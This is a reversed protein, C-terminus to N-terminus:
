KCSACQFSLEPILAEPPFACCHLGFSAVLFCRLVDSMCHNSIKCVKKQDTESTLIDCFVETKLTTCTPGPDEVKQPALLPVYPGHGAIRWM